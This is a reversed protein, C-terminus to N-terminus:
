RREDEESTLDFDFRPGGFSSHGTSPPPSHQALPPVDRAPSSAGSDAAEEGEGSHVQRLHKPAREDTAETDPQEVGKGDVESKESSSSKAGPLYDTSKEREKLVATEEVPGAEPLPPLSSKTM